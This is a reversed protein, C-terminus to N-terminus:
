LSVNFRFKNLIIKINRSYYFSFLMLVYKLLVYIFLYYVFKYNESKKYFIIFYNFILDIKIIRM